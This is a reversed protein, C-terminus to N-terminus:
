APAEISLPADYASFRDRMVHALTHMTSEVVRGDAAVRLRFWTPLDGSFGFLALERTSGDLMLWARRVGDWMFNPADLPSSLASSVWRRGERDWRRSGVFVSAQGDSTTLRVRNPARFEVRTRLPAAVGSRLTEDVVLTRLGHMVRNARQLLPRADAPPRAPLDLPVVTRRGGPRVVEVEFRTRAGVLVPVDFRSCANGCRRAPLRAAAAPALLRVARPESGDAPLVTFDVPGGRLAALGVVVDEAFGAAIPFATPDRLLDRREVPAPESAPAIAREGDAGEILVWAAAVVGLLVVAIASVVSLWDDLRGRMSAVTARLFGAAAGTGQPL